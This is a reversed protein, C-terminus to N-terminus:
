GTSIQRRAARPASACNPPPPPPPPPPLPVQARLADAEAELRTGPAHGLREELDFNAKKLAAVEDRAAPLSHTFRNLSLSLSLTLSLSLSLSHSLSHTLSLSLSLSRARSPTHARESVVTVCCSLAIGASSPAHLAVAVQLSVEILGEEAMEARMADVAEQQKQAGRGATRRTLWCWGVVGRLGRGV